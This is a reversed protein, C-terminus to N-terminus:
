SHRCFSRNMQEVVPTKIIIGAGLRSGAEHQILRLEFAGADQKEDVQEESLKVPLLQNNFSNGYFIDAFSPAIVV